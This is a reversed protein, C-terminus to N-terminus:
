HDDIIMLAQDGSCRGCGAVMWGILRRDDDDAQRCYIYGSESCIYIYSSLTFGSGSAALSTLFTPPGPVDGGTGSSPDDDDTGEM